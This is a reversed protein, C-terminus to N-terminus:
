TTILVYGTVSPFCTVRVLRDQGGAWEQDKLMSHVMTHTNIFDRHVESIMAGAKMIDRRIDSVTGHADRPLPPPSEGPASSSFM